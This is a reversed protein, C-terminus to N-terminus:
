SPCQLCQLPSQMNLAAHPRHQNYYATWSKLWSSLFSLSKIQPLPNHCERRFTGNLCEIHGNQQPSNPPIVYHTVGLEAVMAECEAFFERGRDTQIALVAHGCIGESIVRRVFKAMAKADCCQSLQPRAVIRSYVDVANFQWIWKDGILIKMADIQVLAGPYHAPVREGRRLPVAHPRNVARRCLPRKPKGALIWGCEQRIILSKLIRGVTSDSVEYGERRLLFGIKDKGFAHQNRLTKVRKRLTADDQKSAINHPRRSRDRLGAVGHQRVRQQWNRITRLSVSLQAVADRVSLGQQLLTQYIDLMRKRQSHISAWSDDRKRPTGITNSPNYHQIPQKM